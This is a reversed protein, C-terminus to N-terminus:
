FRIRGGVSYCYGVTDNSVMLYKGNKQIIAGVRLNLLGNDVPLTLDSHNM